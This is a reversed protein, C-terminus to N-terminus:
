LLCPLVVLMENIGNWVKGNEAYMVAHQLAQTYSDKQDDDFTKFWGFSVQALENLFTGSRYEFFKPNTIDNAM